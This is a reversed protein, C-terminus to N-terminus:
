IQLINLKIFSFINENIKNFFSHDKFFGSYHHLPINKFDERFFESLYIRDLLAVLGPQFNGFKDVRGDIGSSNSPRQVVHFKIHEQIPSARLVVPKERIGLNKVMADVEAETATASMAVTPAGSVSFIRMRATITKMEPRFLFYM